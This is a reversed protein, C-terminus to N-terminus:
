PESIQELTQGAAKADNARLAIDAQSVIGVLAGREDVIPIRRVQEKSMVKMVDDVDASPSCTTIDDSMAERVQCKGTHGEAVHRVIIDRDTIVGVLDTSGDGDVVPLMGVDQEKMLRAAEDLPTAATVCVPETSM